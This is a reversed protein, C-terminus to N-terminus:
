PLKTKCGQRHPHCLSPVTIRVASVLLTIDINVWVSHTTTTISKYLRMTGRITSTTGITSVIQLVHLTTRSSGTANINCAGYAVANTDNPGGHGGHFEFQRCLTAYRV